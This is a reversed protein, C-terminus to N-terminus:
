QSGPKLSLLLLILAKLSLEVKGSSLLTSWFAVQLITFCCHVKRLEDQTVSEDM